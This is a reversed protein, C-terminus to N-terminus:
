SNVPVRQMLFHITNGFVSLLAAWFMLQVMMYLVGWINHNPLLLDYIRHKSFKLHNPLPETLSFRVPLGSVQQQTELKKTKWLLLGRAVNYLSYTLFAVLSWPNIDWGKEWNEGGNYIFRVFAELLTISEGSQGNYFHAQVSQVLLFKTYPFLFIILGVLHLVGWVGGFDQRLKAVDDVIKLDMKNGLTLGSSEGLCALTYPDIRAGRLGKSEKFKTTEDVKLNVLSADDLFVGQFVCGCLNSGDFMANRLDTGHTFETMRFDGVFVVGNMSCAAFTPGNHSTPVDESRFEADKLNCNTFETDQLICKAFTCKLFFSDRFSLGMLDLGTLFAGTFDWKRDHLIRNLRNTGDASRPKGLEFLLDGINTIQSEDIDANPVREIGTIENSKESM